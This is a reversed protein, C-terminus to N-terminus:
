NITNYLNLDKLYQLFDFLNMYGNLIIPSKNHQSPKLIVYDLMEDDKFRLTILNSTDKKWNVQFTGNENLTISPIKFEPPMVFLFTLLSKLSELSISVNDEKDYIEFLDILRNGLNPMRKFNSRKSFNLLEEISQYGKLIRVTDDTNKQEQHPVSPFPKNTVEYISINTSKTTKDDVFPKSEFDSLITIIKSFDNFMIPFDVYHGAVVANKPPRRHLRNTNKLTCYIM